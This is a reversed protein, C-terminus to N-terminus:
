PMPTPPLGVVTITNPSVSASVQSVPGVGPVTATLTVSGADTPVDLFLTTYRQGGAGTTGTPLADPGADFANLALVMPDRTDISVEAGGAAAPNGLCDFVAGAVFIARTPDYTAHLATDNAMEAAPTLLPVGWQTKQNLPDITYNEIPLTFPYGDYSFTTLYGAASTQWCYTSGQGTPSIAQQFMLTVYGNSDTQGSMVVGNTASPCPCNTCLTVSADPLGTKTEWDYVWGTWTVQTSNANPWAVSGACAWYGGYNCPGACTSAYDEYLPRFFSVGADHQRECAQACDMTATECALRCRWFADCEASSGCALADSCANSKAFCSQCATSADPESLYGAFGGCTLRCETECKSALCASLASVPAANDAPVPHDITCKSRCAPDGNCAGLCSEYPSCFVPDAACAESEGCCSTSVCSACTTTGYPLGCLTTALDTPPNDQIGSLQRCSFIGGLVAGTASLGTAAVWWRVLQSGIV